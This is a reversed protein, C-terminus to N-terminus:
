PASGAMKKESAALLYAPPPLPPCQPMRLHSWYPQRAEQQMPPDPLLPPFRLLFIEVNEIAIMLFAKTHNQMNSSSCFKRAKENSDKGQVHLGAPSFLIGSPMHLPDKGGSEKALVCVFRSEFCLKGNLLTLIPCFQM